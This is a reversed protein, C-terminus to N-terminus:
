ETDGPRGRKVPTGYERGEGVKARSGPINHHDIQGGNEALSSPRAERGKDAANEHINIAFEQKEGRKWKKM